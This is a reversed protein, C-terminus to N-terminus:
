PMGFVKVFSEFFSSTTEESVYEESHDESSSVIVLRNLFLLHSYSRSIGYDCDAYLGTAGHPIAVCCDRYM